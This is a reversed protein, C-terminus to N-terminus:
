MPPAALYILRPDSFTGKLLVAAIVTVEAGVASLLNCAAEVSGGTAIVDEVLCVKKGRLREIDLGDLVITQNGGSTISESPVMLPTQMYKKVTKRIVVYRPHGLLDAVEHALTIGKAELTVIYNFRELLNEKKMRDVLLSACRKNLEVDGLMVFSAIAKDSGRLRIVPLDRSLGQGLDLRFTEATKV